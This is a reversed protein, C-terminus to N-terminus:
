PLLALALKTLTEAVVIGLVSALALKGGRLGMATRIGTVLLAVFWCAFLLVALSLLLAAASVEGEAMGRLEGGFAGALAGSVVNPLRAVGVAALLDVFRGGRAIPWAVLFLLFATLPWSLALELLATGWGVPPLGTHMDLAGDFRVGLRSVGLQLIAVVAAALLAQGPRLREMPRFLWDTARQRPAMAGLLEEAEEATIRGESLMELVRKQSGSM